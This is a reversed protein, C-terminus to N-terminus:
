QVKRLRETQSIAKEWEEFLIKLMGHPDKSMAIRVGLAAILVTTQDDSSMTDLYQNLNYADQAVEEIEDNM